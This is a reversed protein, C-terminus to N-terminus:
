GALSEDAANQTKIGIFTGRGATLDCFRLLAQAINPGFSDYQEMVLDFGVAQIAELLYARQILFSRRNDWSAWTSTERESFSKDDSFETFWRGVLGENESLPPLNFKAILDYKDTQRNKAEVKALVKQVWTAIRSRMYIADTSFVTQLIVLKTTV